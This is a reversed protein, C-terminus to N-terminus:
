SDGLFSEIAKMVQALEEELTREAKSKRLKQIWRSLNKHVQQLVRNYDLESLPESSSSKESEESLYRKVTARSKGVVAMLAPILSAQGKAPRGKVGYGAERFRDAIARVEATTYDRRQENEAIEIQIAFDPQLEADFSLRHVPIGEPFHKEFANPDTERLHSIAAKRHGGALLRNQSDVALPEILGLLAISKALEEVHNPNLPRTDGGIRDAIEDLPMTASTAEVGKAAQGLKSQKEKLAKLLDSM